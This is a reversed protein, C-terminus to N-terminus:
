DTQRALLRELGARARATLAADDPFLDPVSEYIDQADLLQGNAEYLEGLRLYILGMYPNYRGINRQVFQEADAITLRSYIIEDVRWDAREVDAPVPFAYSSRWINQVQIYGGRAVYNGQARDFEEYGLLADLYRGEQYSADADDLYNAALQYADWWALVYTFLFIAPAAVALIAM